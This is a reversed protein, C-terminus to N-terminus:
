RASPPRFRPPITLVDEAIRLFFERLRPTLLGPHDELVETQQRVARHDVVHGPAQFHLSHGPLVSSQPCCFQQSNDPQIAPFLVVSRGEAAAHLLTDAQRTGQHAIRFDQQHILWETGKVGENPSIHLILEETELLLHLLRDDEDCVIESLAVLSPLRMAM